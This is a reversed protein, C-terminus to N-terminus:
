DNLWEAGMFTYYEASTRCNTNTYVTGCKFCTYMFQDQGDECFISNGCWCDVELVGNVKETEVVVYSEYELEEECGCVAYALLLLLAITILKEKM